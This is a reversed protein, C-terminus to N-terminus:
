GCWIIKGALFRWNSPFIGNGRKLVNLQHRHYLFACGLVLQLQVSVEDVFLRQEEDPHCEWSTYPLSWQHCWIDICTRTQNMVTRKVPSPLSPLTVARFLNCRGVGCGWFQINVMFQQQQKWWILGQCPLAVAKGVESGASHSAGRTTRSRWFLRAASFFLGWGNQPATAQSTPGCASSKWVILNPDKSDFQWIPIRFCLIYCWSIYRIDITRTPDINTPGLDKETNEKWRKEVARRARAEDKLLCVAARSESSGDRFPQHPYELAPHLGDSAQLSWGVDGVERSYVWPRPPQQSVQSRRPIGQTEYFVTTQQLIHLRECQRNDESITAWIEFGGIQNSGLM